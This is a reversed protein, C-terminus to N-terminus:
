VRTDRSSQPLEDLHISRRWAKAEEFRALPDKHFKSHRIGYGFYVLWGIAMWVFLRWITTVESVAIILICIAVGCIPVLLSFYKGGPIRFRRELEPRTFRLVLVGAHVVLYALLTGVSSMNSLLDIPMVAALVATISGVLLTARFPTRFRPHVRALWAPLLGDQGMSYFVRSQALLFIIMVSTLGCIAGLAVIINLWRWDRMTRVEVENIAVTVPTPVDLKHYPAAGTMVTCTAIYLLTSISLSGIIGFPVDKKPNKAEQAATSVADFGIYSFFVTSAGAFIGPVGFFHWDGTNPPVYPHYNAADVFSCVSLVFLTIVILKIVVITANVWAAERIGLCLLATALCVVVFGPVNFYHEPNHSITPPVEVWTVTPQTWSDSLKVNFAIQFFQVFYGSWGVAVHVGLDFGLWYDMCRVLTAYGYTYASGAVPIMSAMESYSLAALGAVISAIVYSITIAPGAYLAAAQGSLVFIGTGIIGGIGVYVLQSASLARRLGAVETEKWMLEVPKVHGLRRLWYHPSSEGEQRLYSRPDIQYRAAFNQFAALAAENM